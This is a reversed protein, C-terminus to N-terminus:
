LQKFLLGQYTGTILYPHLSLPMTLIIPILVLRQYLFLWVLWIDIIALSGILRSAERYIVYWALDGPFGFRTDSKLQAMPTMFFFLRLLLKLWYVKRVQSKHVAWKIESSKAVWMNGHKKHIAWSSNIMMLSRKNMKPKLCRYNGTFRCRNKRWISKLLLFVAQGIVPCLGLLVCNRNAVLSPKGLDCTMFLTIVRALVLLLWKLFLGFISCSSIVQTYYWTSPRTNNKLFRLRLMAKVAISAGGSNRCGGFLISSWCWCESQLRVWKVIM